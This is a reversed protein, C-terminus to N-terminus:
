STSSVCLKKLHDMFVQLSVDDTFIAQSGPNNYLGTNHTTSPNLKSLLFRAQSGGQDCDIFRPIPFRDQLLELADAKPAELMAKFGEYGEQNQYGANRWQAATEGHWILIHFFTDLLLIVDAKASLSDLLVPVPVQNVAYSTLTPQIMILSNTVDERNLASRYFATEDPSNNFVQLFQSRRLHFLFQPYISFNESLRFSMPDDKRYEAFKQCLRILMRDLWRLVDAGDEIESKFVAIRAMVVAAAEQDFSAPVDPSNPDVFNRCITTVRLRMQGSAHQYTTVFQMYGYTNQPVSSNAQAQNVVEFYLAATTQPTVSCFKWACTGGIGIETESVAPTKKQTSIAPGILGCVRFEKSMMVDLTANFGMILNDRDDKEFVRQFSKKFVTTQFSDSLIMYGTTTEVLSKMELLGIQDLCGAFIDITHGNNGARKALADYHKVAKKFHKAHDKELDNHSRLMEKLETGVVTGPGVTCPGAAFLMIRGGSNPFTAELVSVAIAMAVGTCREPRKGPGVVWADVQLQELITTLTLEADQVPLLFSQSQARPPQGPMGPAAQSRAAGLGLLDQIQQGTYDKSGRFVYSRPCDASGLDHLLTMTGYTILGVLANAPLLSLGVILENKLANLDDEDMCTDVVFFFIPPVLPGRSPLTYEVTTYQSMLEAPLTDASIDAYQPPLQNRQLCFPCAWLRARPDIQCYPNLHAGCGKCSVPSYGLPPVDPRDKLITYFCSIPVVNRTAEARSPVFSNWPMRIGDKEELEYWSTM